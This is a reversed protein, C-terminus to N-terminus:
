FSNLLPARRYSLSEALHRCEVKADAELDAITRAVRLLRHQARLTLNLRTTAQRLLDSASKDLQAHEHLVRPALMANTMHQRDLQRDRAQVVRQRILESSENDGVVPAGVALHLERQMDVHLDIRDLFPGSIRSQYRMIVDPTCNCRVVADNYYGCPCPNMAAVLQFRSPFEAQRAARSVTIRGTEMPERLVDLVSRSYEPLEDLFLVGHHALSIEGPMPNAGGGVLAVGSATHHPARFPRIGWHQADFGTYSISAVSAAEMAEMESMPPQIGPLRSALMSKGTGPPGAMLLNHAGAAAIELARRAKHQGVVDSLDPVTPRGQLGMTANEGSVGYLVLPEKHRHKLQRFAEQLSDVAYVRTRRSRIAEAANATPIFLSFRSEAFAHSTPLIGSVSRLEGTLGLEGLVMLGDLAQEPLQGTAQLIGLAIPLDFRGGRKPLDAPALNVIIKVQPFTLGMHQIAAKVRDKSERVASQPLGVISMGPLGGGIHIEVIVPLAQVGCLTCSHVTAYSM